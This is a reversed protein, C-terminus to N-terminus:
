GSVVSATLSNFPRLYTSTGCLIKKSFECPFLTTTKSGTVSFLVTIIGSLLIPPVFLIDTLFPEILKDVLIDVLLQERKFRDTFLRNFTFVNFIPVITVPM